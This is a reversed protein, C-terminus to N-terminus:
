LQMESNWSSNMKCFNCKCNSQKIQWSNLNYDNRHPCYRRLSPKDSHLLSLANATAAHLWSKLDLGSACKFRLTIVAVATVTVIEAGREWFHALSGGGGVYLASVHVFIQVFCSGWISWFLAFEVTKPGNKQEYKQRTHPPQPKVVIEVGKEVSKSAIKPQSEAPASRNWIAAIQFRQSEAKRNPCRLELRLPCFLGVELRLNECLAPSKASERRCRLQFNLCRCVSTMWSGKGKFGAM